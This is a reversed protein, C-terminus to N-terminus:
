QKNSDVAIRNERNALEWATHFVLRAVKEAKDFQIKDVDDTPQHYDAHVGNFFFVVPIKNKAFNYHDSRYYFRNPDKPDNFTYDLDLQTYKQNALENITHLESSLKDSGIVYIYDGKGEHDKDTRGVMDINLDAITKELPFVPNKTYYDSGLLGKEEGTVTMFLVSRRPRNGESAAKGFAEAIELVSVTGSGDDNAGNNIQGDASIGIHDYHATIILVEDKKDTGELFGLVNETQILEENRAAKLAINQPKVSGATTAKSSSIKERLQTLKAPKIKMLEAALAPTIFVAATNTASEPKSRDKFEVRNMLRNYTAMQRAKIAFADPTDESVIFFAKAGKERALRQKNQWSPQGSWKNTSRTDGSVLYNGEGNKPEGAFVLVAKGSVDLNKYDSYTDSEIGYGAFVVDLPTEDPMSTLGYVYFDENANKRAGKSTKVYVEGWSRKVLEFPQFWSSGNVIPKLGSNAFQAAIYRAAKKQGPSGTDRGELSDAAIIRLHKELDTRTITEAFRAPVDQAQVIGVLGAVLGTLLIRKM